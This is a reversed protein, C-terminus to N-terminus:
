IRTFFLLQTGEVTEAASGVTVEVTIAGLGIFLPLSISNSNGMPISITGEVQKNVFGLLGGTANLSYAVDVADANGINSIEATIGLGGSISDITIIPRAAGVNPEFYIIDDTGTYAAGGISVDSDHFGDYVTNESLQTPTEWTAGNDLSQTVYLLDDKVFTVIAGDDTEAIRPSSGLGIEVTEFSDFGDTSYYAFITGDSETVIIVNDDRASIDLNENNLGTAIVGGQSDTGADPNYDFNDIRIFIDHIGTTENYMQWVGYHQGAEKDGDSAPRTCGEVLYWSITAYNEGTPYQVLPCDSLDYDEYGVYGTISWFGIRWEEYSDDGAAFQTDIFDYFNYESWDWAAGLWTDINSYDVFDCLIVQGSTSIDPTMTAIYRKGAWHDISPYESQGFDWGGADMWTEGADASASFYTGQNEIDDLGLMISSGSASIAPHMGEFLPVPLLNSSSEKVTAPEIFSAKKTLSCEEAVDWFIKEENEDKESTQYTAMASMSIMLGVILLVMAKIVVTNGKM